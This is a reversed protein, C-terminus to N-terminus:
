ELEIVEVEDNMNDKALAVVAVVVAAVKSTTIMSTEASPENKDSAEQHDLAEEGGVEAVEEAVVDEVERVGIWIGTEETRDTKETATQIVFQDYPGIVWQMLDVYAHM